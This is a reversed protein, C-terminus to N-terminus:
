SPRSGCKMTDPLKVPWFDGAWKAPNPVTAMPNYPAMTAKVKALCIDRAPVALKTCEVLAKDKAMRQPDREKKPTLMPNPMM